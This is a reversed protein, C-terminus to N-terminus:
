YHSCVKKKMELLCTKYELFKSQQYFYFEDSLTSEKKLTYKSSLFDKFSDNASLELKKLLDRSKGPLIPFLSQIPTIWMFRMIDEVEAFARILLLLQLCVWSSFFLM